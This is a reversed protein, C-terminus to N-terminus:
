YNLDLRMIRLGLLKVDIIHSKVKLTNACVGVMDHALSTSEDMCWWPQLGQDSWVGGLQLNL